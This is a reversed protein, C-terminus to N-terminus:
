ITEGCWFTIPFECTSACAIKINSYNHNPAVIMNDAVIINPSELGRNHSVNIIDEVNISPILSNMSKIDGFTFNLSINNKYKNFLDGYGLEFMIMNGICVWIKYNPEIKLQYKILERFFTTAGSQRKAIVAVYGTDFFKDMTDQQYMKLNM